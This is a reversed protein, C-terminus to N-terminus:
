ISKLVEPICSVNYGGVSTKHVQLFDGELGVTTTEEGSTRGEEGCKSMTSRSRSGKM